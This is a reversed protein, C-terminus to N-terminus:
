PIDDILLNYTGGIFDWEEVVLYYITSASLDATGIEDAAYFYTDEFAIMNSFASDDFLYWSLDSGTDTLSITYTGASTTTFAYYSTGGDSITGSHITGVTLIVPNSMSGEDKYSSGAENCGALVLVLVLVLVLILATFILRAKM